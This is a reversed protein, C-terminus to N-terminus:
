LIDIILRNDVSQQNCDDIIQNNDDIVQNYIINMQKYNNCM